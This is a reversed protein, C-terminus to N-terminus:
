AKNKMLYDVWYKAERKIKDFAEGKNSSVTSYPGAYGGKSLYQSYFSAYSNMRDSGEYLGITYENIDDSVRRHRISIQMGNSLEIVKSDGLKPGAMKEVSRMDSQKLLGENNGGGTNSNLGNPASSASARTTGNGKGM